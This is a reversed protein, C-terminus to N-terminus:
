IHSSVTCGKEWVMRIRYIYIHKENGDPNNQDVEIIVLYILFAQGADM